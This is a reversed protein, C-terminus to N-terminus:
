KSRKGFQVLMAGVSKKGTVEIEKRTWFNEVAADIYCLIDRTNFQLQELFFIAPFIAKLIFKHYWIM